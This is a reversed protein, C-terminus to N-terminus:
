DKVNIAVATLACTGSVALAAMSLGTTVEGVSEWDVNDAISFRTRNVEKLGNSFLAGCAFFGCVFFSTLMGKSLFDTLNFRRTVTLRLVPKVPENRNSEEILEEIAQVADGLAVDPYYEIRSFEPSDQINIISNRILELRKIQNPTLVQHPLTDKM